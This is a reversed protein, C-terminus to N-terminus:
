VARRTVRRWGIYQIAADASYCTTSALAVGTVGYASGLPLCLLVCFLAALGGPITRTSHGSAILQSTFIIAASQAVTAFCMIVASTVAGSYDHGFLVPIVLPALLALITSTLAVPLIGRFINVKQKQAQATRRMGVIAITQALPNVVSGYNSSVSYLGIERNSLVASSVVQDLRANAIFLMNYTASGLTDERLVQRLSTAKSKEHRSIATRKHPWLSPALAAALYVIVVARTNHFHSIYMALLVIIMAVSATSRALFLTRYKARALWVAQNIVAAPNAVACVVCIAMLDLAGFGVHAGVAVELPVLGLGLLLSFFGWRQAAQRIIAESYVSGRGSFSTMLGFGCITGAITVTSVLVAFQGRGSPGLIRATIPGSVASQLAVSYNSAVLFLRSDQHHASRAARMFTQTLAVMAESREHM